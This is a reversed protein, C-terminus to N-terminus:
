ESTLDVFLGQRIFREANKRHLRFLSRLYFCGDGAQRVPVCVYSNKVIKLFRVEFDSIFRVYDPFKIIDAMYDLFLNYDEEHEKKIHSLTSESLFVKTCPSIKLDLKLIVTESFCGIVSIEDV